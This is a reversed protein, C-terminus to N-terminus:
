ATMSHIWELRPMRQIIPALSAANGNANLLVNASSVDVNDIDLEEISSGTGLIHADKPLWRLETLSHDGSKPGVIIIKCYIGLEEEEDKKDEEKSETAGM